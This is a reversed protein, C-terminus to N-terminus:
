DIIKCKKVKDTYKVTFISLGLKKFYLHMGAACSHIQDYSPKTAGLKLMSAYSVPHCAAGM